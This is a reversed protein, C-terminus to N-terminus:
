TSTPNSLNCGPALMPWRGFPFIFEKAVAAKGFVAFPIKADIILTWFIGLPVVLKGVPIEFPDVAAAHEGRFTARPLVLVNVDFVRGRMQM